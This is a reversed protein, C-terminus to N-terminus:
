PVKPVNNSDGGVKIMLLRVTVDQRATAWVGSDTQAVARQIKISVRFLYKIVKEPSIKPM